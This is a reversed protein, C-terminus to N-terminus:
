VLDCWAESGELEPGTQGTQDAVTTTALPRCTWEGVGGIGARVVLHLAFVDALNRDVALRALDAHLDDGQAVALEVGLSIGAAQWAVAPILTGAPTM